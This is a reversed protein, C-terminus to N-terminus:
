TQAALLKYPQIQSIEPLDTIRAEPGPQRSVLGPTQLRWFVHM